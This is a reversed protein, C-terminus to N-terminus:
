RADEAADAGGLSIHEETLESRRAELIDAPSRSLMGSEERREENDPRTAPACRRRMVFIVVITTVGESSRRMERSRRVPGVLGLLAATGVLRGLVAPLVWPTAAAATAAPM